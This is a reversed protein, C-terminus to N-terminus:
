ARIIYLAQFQCRVPFWAFLVYWLRHVMCVYARWSNMHNPHGAWTPSCSRGAAPGIRPNSQVDSDAGNGCQAGRAQEAGRWRWPRTDGSTGGVKRRPGNGGRRRRPTGHEGTRGLAAMVLRGVAAARRPALDRADSPLHADVCAAASYGCWGM